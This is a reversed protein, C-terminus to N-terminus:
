LANPLYVKGFGEQLDKEHIRRAKKLQTQLPEILTKPLVTIRDVQGKGDRVMIQNYEFDISQTRLRLCEIMRLGAGYLLKAMLLKTDTLCNFILKVEDRSLM